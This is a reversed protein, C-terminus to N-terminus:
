KPGRLYRVSRVRVRADRKEERISRLEKQARQHALLDVAPLAEPPSALLRLSVPAPEFRLARACFDNWDFWRDARNRLTWSQEQSLVACRWGSHHIDLIVQRFDSDDSILCITGPHAVKAKAMLPAVMKATDRVLWHDAAQPRAPVVILTVEAITSTVAFKAGHPFREPFAQLFDDFAECGFMSEMLQHMDQHVLTRYSAYLRVRQVDHDPFLSPLAHITTDLNEPRKNDFDWFVHLPPKEESTSSITTGDGKGDLELAELARRAREARQRRASRRNPPPSSGGACVVVVCIILTLLPSWCPTLLM